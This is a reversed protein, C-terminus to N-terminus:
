CKCGPGRVIGEQEELIINVGPHSAVQQKLHEEVAKALDEIGDGKQASVEFHGQIVNGKKQQSSKFDDIMQPNVKRQDEPLDFKNGVLLFHAQVDQSSPADKIETIWFKGLKELSDEKDISYVLVAVKM